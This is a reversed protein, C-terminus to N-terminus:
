PKGYRPSRWWSRMLADNLRGSQEGAAILMQEDRPAWGDIAAALRHGNRIRDIWASIAIAVPDKARGSAVLRDHMSKLADLIPVGNGLLKALKIWLRRRVAMGSSFMFRSFKLEFDKV